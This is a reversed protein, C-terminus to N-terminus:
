YGLDTKAKAWKKNLDDLGAKLDKSILLDQIYNGTGIGIQAKNAIEAFKPDNPLGEIFTPNTAQFEALQPSEAKESKIIPMFGSDKVYGSEKVFFDVWATALEKNKSNKSVAIMYDSGLPANLKGSNDYPFPVFGIDDSSAGAAEVQPIVWNGLFYMAAKGSAVEGKSMEWNNTYLDKEVWGKSIFERGIQALQGWANDMQFPAPDAAMKASLDAEGAVYFASGDGWTGMPWQAGFNMYLPIIGADKLKQADAYLEDLTTPAKDIGAKKFAQKNYVLGQTNVGTTIGYRKGEFANNDAFYVDDFMSDPLPEFYKPYDTAPMGAPVMLVDGTEGTTLRTKIDTAYNTLGEFEVKADPNKEQFKKVYKDMTGDNIYDTRHTLVKLTGKLGGAEGTGGANTNSATGTNAAGTDGTNGANGSNDNNGCAALMSLSLVATMTVLLPKKM